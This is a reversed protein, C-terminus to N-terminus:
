LVKFVNAVIPDLHYILVLSILAENMGQLM